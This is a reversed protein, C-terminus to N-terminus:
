GAPADFQCERDIPVLGQTVSGLEPSILVAGLAQKGIVRISHPDEVLSELCVELVDEKRLRELIWLYRESHLGASSEPVSLARQLNSPIRQILKFHELM